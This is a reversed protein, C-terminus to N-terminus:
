SAKRYRFLTKISQIGDRWRIKKGEAKSRPTYSIPVEMVRWNRQAVKLTLELEMEFRSEELTIDELVEKKFVKYGTWVDTLSLGTAANTLATFVKNGLYFSIPWKGESAGLFRSGYVVDARDTLLPELLRPYDQPSYELDADQVIVIEGRALQFGTKLAAGKGKNKLHTLVRVRTRDALVDCFKKGGE